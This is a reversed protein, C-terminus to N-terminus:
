LLAGKVKDKGNTVQLVFLEEVSAIQAANVGLKRKSVVFSM